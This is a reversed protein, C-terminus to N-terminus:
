STLLPSRFDSSSPTQNKKLPTFSASKKVSEDFRALSSRAYDERSEFSLWKRKLREATAGTTNSGAFPDLVLDNEDTLFKIFFEALEHPMRAPHLPLGANRCFMQYQESSRTNTGKLITTLSDLADAGIVNPPIAGGNNKAFSRSGITHQSPRRGSNYKGNSILKKMAPSYERLVRRNDAKPRTVPSMWWIRTFADKVRSREVNVWQVPSPLRAPNYWVFEQCLHLGGTELFKLLSRLVVTSMVPEGPEWANGVELVISGNPTLFKKLLPAFSSLWEIYAQGSLNGYKKKTNLPFPPSTFVLQVKREYKQFYKTKLLQDSAGCFIRGRMTSYIPTPARTNKQAHPRKKSKTKSKAM